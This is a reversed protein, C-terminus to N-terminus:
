RAGLKRLTYVYSITPPLDKWYSPKPQPFVPLVFIPLKIPQPPPDSYRLTVFKGQVALYAQFKGDVIYNHPLTLVIEDLPKVPTIVVPPAPPEPVARTTAAEMTATRPLEPLSSLITLSGDEKVRAEVKLTYSTTLEDAPIWRTVTVSGLYLGPEPAGFACEAMGACVLFLSLFLTKM